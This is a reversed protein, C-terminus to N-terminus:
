ACKNKSRILKNIIVKKYTSLLNDLVENNNDTSVYNITDYKRDSKIRTLYALLCRNNIKKSPIDLLKSYKDWRIGKIYKYIDEKTVCYSINSLELNNNIENIKSLLIKNNTNSELYKIYNSISMDNIGYTNVFSILTNVIELYSYITEVDTTSKFIRFEITNKNLLNISYHLM